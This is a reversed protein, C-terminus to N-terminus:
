KEERKVYVIKEVIDIGKYGMVYAVASIAPIILQLAFLLVFQWLSLSGATAVTSGILDIFGYYQSNFLRYLSIPMNPLAGLGCILFVAFMIFYPSNAIFGIKLGKLKDEKMHGHRVMNSDKFGQQYNPAFVFSAMIIFGLIQSVSLFIAKGTGSLGSRLSKFTLKYGAAEYEERKIDEGDAYYYTYLHTTDEENQTYGYAAYGTNETFVMSCIVNISLVLFFELLLLVLLRGMLSFGSKLTAKM